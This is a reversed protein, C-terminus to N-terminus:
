MVRRLMEFVILGRASWCVTRVWNGSVLKDVLAASFQERLRAHQPVQVTYTGMWIIALLVAGGVILSLPIAAPRWRFLAVMTFLELLMPPGVVFTTLRCNAREYDVFEGAGVKQLLPYHVIQVFWIIGCMIWTAMAHLLLIMRLQPEGIM